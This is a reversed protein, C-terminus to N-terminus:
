QKAETPIRLAEILPRLTEPEHHALYGLTTELSDHGLLQQAARLDKTRAYTQTAARRRLDHPRLTQRADARNLLKKWARCQVHSDVNGGKLRNLLPTTASAKPAISFLKELEDTTPLTRPKKGKGLITVTRNAADHTADCVQRAEGSRMALEAQLILWCREWPLAADYLNQLEQESPAIARPKPRRRRAKLKMGGADRILELIGKLHGIANYATGAAYKIHLFQIAADVHAQNLQDATRGPAAAKIAKAARKGHFNHTEAWLNALAEVTQLQGPSTQKKTHGSRRVQGEPIGRSSKPQHIRETEATRARKELRGDM